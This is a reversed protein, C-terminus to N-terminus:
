TQADSADEPFFAIGISASIRQDSLPPLTRDDLTDILQQALHGVERGDRAQPAVIAFEDGGVRALLDSPRM